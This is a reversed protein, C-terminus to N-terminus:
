DIMLSELNYMKQLDIDKINGAIINAAGYQECYPNIIKEQVFSNNGYSYIQGESSKLASLQTNYDNSNDYIIADYAISLARPLLKLCRDYRSRIKDESVDHGGESVRKAVRAVNIDSSNTIVYILHIKYGEQKARELFDLKSPHSMVTEFMFDKKNELYHNRLTDAINAAFINRETYDLIHSCKASAAIVDANIFPIEGLQNENIFNNVTTSKGSGNPGAFCYINM